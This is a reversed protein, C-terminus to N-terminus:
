PLPGRLGEPVGANPTGIPSPILTQQSALRNAKACKTPQSPPLCDTQMLYILSRARDVKTEHHREFGIKELVRLSVCRAARSAAGACSPNPLPHTAPQVSTAGSKGNGTKRIDKPSM